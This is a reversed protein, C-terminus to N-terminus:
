LSSDKDKDKGRKGKGRGGFAGMPVDFPDGTLDKWEKAQEPTLLAVGKTTFEKRITTMKKMAEAPDGGGGFLGQTEERMEGMLGQVKEKQEDTLKLTKDVAPSMFAQLGQQQVGIQKLRKVQEPKWAKELAAYTEEAQKTGIERMKQRQEDGELERAKTMEERFKETIEQLAEKGKTVQEETLKLEKQVAENNVLMAAGGGGFGRQGRGQAFAPSAILAMVGVVLLCKSLGRM